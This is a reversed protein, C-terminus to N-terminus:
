AKVLGFHAEDRDGGWGWYFICKYEYDDTLSVDFNMLM